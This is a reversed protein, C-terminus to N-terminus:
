LSRGFSALRESYAAPTEARAALVAPTEARAALVTCEIALVEAM